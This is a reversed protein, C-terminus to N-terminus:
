CKLDWVLAFTIDNGSAINLISSLDLYPVLLEKVLHGKSRIKHEAAMLLLTFFDTCM